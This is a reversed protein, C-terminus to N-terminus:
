MEEEERKNRMSGTSLFRTHWSLAEELLHPTQGSYRECAREFYSRLMPRYDPHACNEIIIEAREKPSKWRLDAVGWETVIVDVDHETHDVHSVMPVVCSIDGNKALSGTAFITVGANRAFDGSGGVGNYTKTGAIHTSNVNGYIDVEIPTNISVVKLRRIIEPHNSIEQPRIVIRERYFDINDYLEECAEKSLCMCTASAESVAGAKVLNLAGDQLVESYMRIGKFDKSLGYLIANAVSGFGSQLPNLNEPQRGEAVENKLFDVINAALKESVEDPQKFKPYEGSGQTEVIGVIKSSDCPIYTTGIRDSPNRLPICDDDVYYIDHMGALKENVSYNVELIIQDCLQVFSEVAGVSCVPIFGREDVAMCEIIALDPKPGARSRLKVPLDSLHYDCYAVEGGNVANRMHPNGQYPARGRVMGARALVGDLSDGVGASTILFLDKAVGLRAIEKPIASPYGIQSFGSCLICMGHKVLEAAQAASIIKEKLADAIREM